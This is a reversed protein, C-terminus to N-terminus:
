RPSAQHSWHGRDLGQGTTMMLKDCGDGHRRGLEGEHGRTRMAAWVNSGTARGACCISFSDSPQLDCVSFFFAFCFLNILLLFILFQGPRRRGVESSLRTSPRILGVSGTKELSFRVLVATEWTLWVTNGHKYNSDLLM